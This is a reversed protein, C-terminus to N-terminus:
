VEGPLAAVQGGGAVVVRLARLAEVFETVLLQREGQKTKAADESSFAAGEFGGAREAQGLGLSLRPSDREEIRVPLVVFAGDGRRTGHEPLCCEGCRPSKFSSPHTLISDPGLGSEDKM